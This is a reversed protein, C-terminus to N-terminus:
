FPLEDQEVQTFGHNYNGNGAPADSGGSERSSLFEVSNVMIELQAAPQNNKDLYARPALIRGEVMVKAGKKLYKQCAEGTKGWAAARFYTTTRNDGIGENVAVSFNCVSKQSPTTRSEPDATLNGTIIIKNM